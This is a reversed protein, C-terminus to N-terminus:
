ESDQRMVERERYKLLKQDFVVPISGVPGNRQKAIIIEDEGSFDGDKLPRYLLLVVSADQEINGSEKLRFMTPVENENGDRPRALQSLVVVPIRETKAFERLAASILNLREREDKVKTRVRVLQLYDVIVLKIRKRRVELRARAILEHVDLAATDDIYLPWEQAGSEVNDTLLGVKTWDDNSMSRPNRFAWGPIDLHQSYARMQLQERSMELSFFLAPTNELLNAHAIQIAFATKGQGPRAGICTIEGKRFGTTALDLGPLGSLLGLVQRKSRRMEELQQYLPRAIEKGSVAEPKSSDALIELLSIELDTITAEAPESRDTVRGMGAELLAMLQRRSHCERIAKVPAELSKVAGTGLDSLYASGGVKQLESRSTLVDVVTFLEIKKGAEGLECMTQYIKRHAAHFFHEPRLQPAIQHYVSDDLLIAGLVAREAAENAPITATDTM